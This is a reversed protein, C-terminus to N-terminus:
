THRQSSYRACGASGSTVTRSIERESSQRALEDLTFDPRLASLGKNGDRRQEGESGGSGSSRGAPGAPQAAGSSIPRRSEQGCVRCSNVTPQICPRGAAQPRELARRRVPRPARRGRRSASRPYSCRQPCPRKGRQTTPTLTVRRRSRSRPRPGHKPGILAWVGSVPDAQTRRRDGPFRTDM